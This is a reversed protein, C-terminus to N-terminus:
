GKPPRYIWTQFSFATRFGMREYLPYGMESSQLYAATSGRALGERIAHWVMAEGYGRRRHGPLTTVMNITALGHLAYVCSTAVPEGGVRGLYFFLGPTAVLDINAWIAFGTEDGGFGRAATKRYSDMTAADQVTEIELGPIAAPITIGAPDLFMAPETTSHAMGAQEAAPALQEIAEGFAFLCWPMGTEAFFQQAQRIAAGADVTPRTAMATNCGTLPVGTSALALGDVEGFRGDPLTRAM